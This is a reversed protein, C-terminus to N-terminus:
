NSANRDNLHELQQARIAELEKASKKYSDYRTNMHKDLWEKNKQPDLCAIHGQWEGPSPEKSDPDYANM